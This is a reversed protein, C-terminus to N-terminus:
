NFSFHVEKRHLRSCKPLEKYITDLKARVLIPVLPLINDWFIGFIYITPKISLQCVPKEKFPLSDIITDPFVM